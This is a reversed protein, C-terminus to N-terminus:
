IDGRFHGFFIMEITLSGSSIILPCMKEGSNYIQMSSFLVTWSNNIYDKSAFGFIDHELSVYKNQLYSPTKKDNEQKLNHM